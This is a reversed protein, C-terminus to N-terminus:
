NSFPRPFLCSCPPFSRLPFFFSLPPTFTFLLMFTFSPTFLSLPSFALIPPVVGHPYHVAQSKQHLWSSSRLSRSALTQGIVCREAKLSATVDYTVLGFLWGCSGPTCLSLVGKEGVDKPIRARSMQPLREPHRWLILNNPHTTSYM